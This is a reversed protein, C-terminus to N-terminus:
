QLYIKRAKMARLKNKELYAGIGSRNPTEYTRYAKKIRKRIKVPICSLDILAKNEDFRAQEEPTFPLDGSWWKALKDARVPKQRVKNRLDDISSLINPIGDGGDGRVILEFLFRKPDETEVFSKDINSWQKVRKSYKQLQVFDKDKSAILVPEKRKAGVKALVGIIDDAEAGDIEIVKFPLNEKIEKQLTLIIDDICDWDLSSGKKSESRGAKYNPFTKHRWTKDKHTTDVAFIMEGYESKFRANIATVTMLYKHRVLDKDFKIKAPKKKGKPQFGSKKELTVMCCAITLASHDMLIM